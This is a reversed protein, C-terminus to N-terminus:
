SAAVAGSICRPAVSAGEIRQWRAYIHQLFEIYEPTHIAAIPGLGFNKPREITCGAAKAGALLREIDVTGNGIMIPYRRELKGGDLIFGEQRNQGFLVIAQPRPDATIFSAVVM